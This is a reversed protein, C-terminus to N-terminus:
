EDASKSVKLLEDVLVKMEKELQSVQQALNDKAQSM